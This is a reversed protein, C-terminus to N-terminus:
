FRVGASLRTADVSGFNQKPDYAIRIFWAPFDCTITTGWARVYGSDGNGTKRLIDFTFRTGHGPFQSTAHFHRQDTGLRDDVIATLFFARGDEGRYGGSVTIADNPDFNLNAYPRLNTRGIGALLFWPAGAQVSLSGGVFGKSAAQVSPALSYVGNTGLAIATDWGARSQIGFEPDRYAGLWLSTDNARYRLNIDQGSFSHYDYYGLTLKMPRGAKTADASDQPQPVVGTEGASAMSMMLCTLVLFERPSVNLRNRRTLRDFAPSSNM